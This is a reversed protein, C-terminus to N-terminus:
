TKWAMSIIKGEMDEKPSVIEESNSIEATPPVIEESNKNDEGKNMKYRFSWVFDFTFNFLFFYYNVSVIERQM